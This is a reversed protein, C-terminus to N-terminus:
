DYGVYWFGFDSAGTFNTGLTFGISNITIGNSAAFTATAAGSSYSSGAMDNTKGGWLTNGTVIVWKPQKDLSITTTAPKTADWSGVEFIRTGVVDYLGLSYFTQASALCRAATLGDTGPVEYTIGYEASRIERNASSQTWQTDFAGIFDISVGDAPGIFDAHMIINPTAITLGSNFYITPRRGLLLNTNTAGGNGVYTNGDSWPGARVAIWYYTIGATNINGNSGVNFGTSLVTIGNTTTNVVATQFVACTSGPMANLKLTIGASAAVSSNSMIIVLTPSWDPGIIINQSGGNGTYTGTESVRNYSM